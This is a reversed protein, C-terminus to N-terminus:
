RAAHLPYQRGPGQQHEYLSRHPSRLTAAVAARAARPSRTRLIGNTCRGCGRCHCCRPWSCPFQILIWERPMKAAARVVVVAAAAPCTEAVALELVAKIASLGKAAGLVRGKWRGGKS